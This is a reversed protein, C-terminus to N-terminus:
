SWPSKCGFEILKLFGCGTPLKAAADFSKSGGRLLARCAAMDAESDSRQQM